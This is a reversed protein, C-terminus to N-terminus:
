LAFLAESLYLDRHVRDDQVLAEIDARSPRAAVGIPRAGASV